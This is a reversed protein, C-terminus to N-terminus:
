WSGETYKISVHLLEKDNINAINKKSWNSIIQWNLTTINIRCLGYLSNIIM